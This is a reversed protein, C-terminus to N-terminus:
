NTQCHVVLVYEWTLVRGVCCRLNREMICTVHLLTWTSNRFLSVGDGPGLGEVTLGWVCLSAVAALFCSNFFM